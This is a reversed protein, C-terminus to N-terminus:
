KRIAHLLLRVNDPDDPFVHAQLLAPLIKRTQAREMPLLRWRERHMRYFLNKM